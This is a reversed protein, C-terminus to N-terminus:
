FVFQIEKNEFVFLLGNEDLLAIKGNEYVTDIKLQKIVNNIKFSHLAKYGYLNNFYLENIVNLKNQRLLLIYKEFYKCFQELALNLNIEYGLQALSTANNVNEFHKQNLNIGVGIVSNKLNEGKYINEILIGGIKKKNVLIDNPWKIKIDYQSKNLYHAMLDYCALAACKSLYFQKNAQINHTNLVVSLTLNSAKETVWANGRQGRGKTQHHTHIITGDIINVNKLLEIAYSNTSDIETLFICNSGIFLTEM